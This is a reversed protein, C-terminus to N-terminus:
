TLRVRIRVLVKRGRRLFSILNRPIDAAAKDAMVMLTRPCIFSSKRVVLDTPHTLTLKSCGSGQVKFILGGAELELTVKSNENKILQKLKDKLDLAGKEAKVAVICNGRSTLESEKTIELTTSHTAQINRHGWAYFEESAEEAL